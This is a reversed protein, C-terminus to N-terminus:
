LQRVVPRLEGCSACQPQGVYKPETKEEWGWLAESPGEASSSKLSVSGESEEVEQLSAGGESLEGFLTQTLEKLWRRENEDLLHNKRPVCSKAGFDCVAECDCRWIVEDGYYSGCIPCFARPETDPETTVDYTCSKCTWEVCDPYRTPGPCVNKSDLFGYFLVKTKGELVDKDASLLGNSLLDPSFVIGFTVELQLLSLRVSDVLRASESTTTSNTKNSGFEETAMWKLLTRWVKVDSDTLRWESGSVAVGEKSPPLAMRWHVATRFILAETLIADQDLDDSAADSAYEDKPTKFFKKLEAENLRKRESSRRVTRTEGADRLLHGIYRCLVKRYTDGVHPERTEIQLQRKKSERERHAKRDFFHVRKNSKKNSEDTETTDVSDSRVAVAQSRCLPRSDNLRSECLRESSVGESPGEDELWRTPIADLLSTTSNCSKKIVPACADTFHGLYNCRRRFQYIACGLEDQYEDAM